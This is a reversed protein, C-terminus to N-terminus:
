GAAYVIEGNSITHVVTINSYDGTYQALDHDLVVLDAVMNERLRGAQEERYEAYATSTSFARLAQAMTLGQNPMGSKWARRTCARQIGDFCNCSVIPWDSGFVLCAGSKLLSQWAFATPWELEPVKKHWLTVPPREHLAQMSAIVDLRSFRPIDFINCLEIHEIRHRVRQGRRKDIDANKGRAREVANLVANVAGNGISHAAVQLGLRDACAVVLDLEEKSFAPIGPQPHQDLRFATDKEVVGDMFLKVANCQVRAAPAVLGKGHGQQRDTRQRYEAVHAQSIIHAFSTIFHHWLAFAGSQVQKEQQRMRMTREMADLLYRRLQPLDLSGQRAQDLHNRIAAAQAVDMLMHEDPVISYSSHVRLPLRKEAELELLLMVCEIDEEPLALGMNHVGTLGLSALYHCAQRLFSKKQAVSFPYRRRLAEEVLFYVPPEKLEGSPLHERDLLLNGSLNLETLLHPYPPMPRMIGATELARTNAWGTHLDHAYVFLPKDAVIRDLMKRAAHGPIVPNDQYHLNYVYYVSYAPHQNVFITVARVFEEQSTVAGVDCGQYYEAGVMLHVHADCLGPIVSAGRADIVRTNIDALGAIDGGIHSIHSGKLAISVPARSGSSPFPRANKILVDAPGDPAPFPANPTLRRTYAPQAPMRALARAIDLRGRKYNGITSRIHAFTRLLYDM